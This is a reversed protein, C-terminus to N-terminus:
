YRADYTSQEEVVTDARGRSRYVPALMATLLLVAGTIAYVVGNAQHVGLVREFSSAQVAIVIGGAIGVIGAFVMGSRDAGPLAGAGLVILGFLLSILGMWVTHGLGAVDAQELADFSFGTRALAIGGLVLYIIGIVLAIGQAPSWAPRAVSRQAIRQEGVVQDDLM